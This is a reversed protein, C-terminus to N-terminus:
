FNLGLWISMIGDSFCSKSWSIVIQTCLEFRNVEFTRLSAQARAIKGVEWADLKAM